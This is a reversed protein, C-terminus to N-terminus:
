ALAGEGGGLAVDERMFSRALLVVGGIMACFTVLGGAFGLAFPVGLYSVFENVSGHPYIAFYLFHLANFSYVSVMGAIFPMFALACYLVTYRRSPNALLYFFMVVLLVAFVSLYLSFMGGSWFRGWISLDFREAVM